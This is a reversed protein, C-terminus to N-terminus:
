TRPNKYEFPEWSIVKSEDKCREDKLAHIEISNKDDMCIIFRKTGSEFHKELFPIIESAFLKGAKSRGILKRLELVDAM